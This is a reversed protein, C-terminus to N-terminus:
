VLNGIYKIEIRFFQKVRISNNRFLRTKLYNQVQEEKM